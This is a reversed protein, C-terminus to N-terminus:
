EPGEPAGTFAEIHRPYKNFLHQRDDSAEENEKEDRGTKQNDDDDDGDHKPRRM